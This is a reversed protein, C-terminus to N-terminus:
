KYCRLYFVFCRLSADTRVIIEYDAALYVNADAGPSSIVRIFAYLVYLRPSTEGPIKHGNHRTAIGPMGDVERRGAPIRGELEM